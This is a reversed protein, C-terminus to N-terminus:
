RWDVAFARAPNAVFMRETAVTGLELDLRPRLRRLLVPIGMVRSM